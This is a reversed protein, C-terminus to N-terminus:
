YAALDLRMPEARRVMWSSDAAGARADFQAMAQTLLHAMRDGDLLSSGALARGASVPLRVRRMQLTELSGPAAVLSLPAATGTNIVSGDALRIEEIRNATSTYWNAVTLVDSAGTISVQLNNGSRTLVVQSSAVGAGIEIRDATGGADTITDNGQGIGWRYIDNSTTSNDNLVDNGAGGIYTDNGALGALTNAASNGTLVNALTNGTGSIASSGTLVLNEVNSGLTWMVSAYVTDTGGNSAETVTDGAGVFYRDNGAGGSLANAASNGYLDNALSNGTGNIAGTGTLVLHEVNNPLATVALSSRITDNGENALETVADSTSDRVYVDDGAGGRMTDAGLGGDLWDHGANGNLTDNGDLGFLRDANAGGNLTDVGASGQATTLVASSLRTTDWATGDAFLLQEVAGDGVAAGNSFGSVTIKDTTGYLEITLDNSNTRFVQVDGAGIGAGLEIRDTEGVAGTRDVVTDQGSGLGFRYTDSGYGTFNGNWTDYQGGALLDNGAGGDLVDDGYLGFLNDNDGGGLLVDNGNDGNLSDAGADGSLVDNGDRGYIVDAGDGGSITDATAYGVLTEGATSGVLVMQM